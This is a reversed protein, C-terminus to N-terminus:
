MINGLRDFKKLKAHIYLLFYVSISLSVIWDVCIDRSILRDLELFKKLSNVKGTLTKSYAKSYIVYNKDLLM